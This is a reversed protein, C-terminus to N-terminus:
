GRIQDHPSTAQETAILFHPLVLGMNLNKTQWIGSEGEERLMWDFIDTINYLLCVANNEGCALAVLHDFSIGVAISEV